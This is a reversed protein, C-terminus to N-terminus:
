PGRRRATMLPPPTRGPDILQLPHNAFTIVAPTYGEGASLNRMRVFLAQHRYPRRRLKRHDIRCAGRRRSMGTWYKM